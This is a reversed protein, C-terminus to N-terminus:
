KNMIKDLVTAIVYMASVYAACVGFVKFLVEKM